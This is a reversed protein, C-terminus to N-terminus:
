KAQNELLNGLTLLSKAFSRGFDMLNDENFDIISRNKDM